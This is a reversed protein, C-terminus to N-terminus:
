GAASPEPVKGGPIHKALRKSLQALGQGRFGMFELGVRFRDHKTSLVSYVLRADAEILEPDHGVFLPPPAIMVPVADKTRVDEPVLISAGGISLDHTRGVLHVSRGQRTLLLAINWQLHYRPHQRRETM